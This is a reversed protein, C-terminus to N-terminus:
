TPLTLAVASENFEINRIRVRAALNNVNGVGQFQSGNLLYDPGTGGDVLAYGTAYTVRQSSNDRIRTLFDDNDAQGRIAIDAVGTVGSLSNFRLDTELLDDGWQGAQRVKLRGDLDLGAGAGAGENLDVVLADHGVDGNQAIDLVAGNDIFFDNTPGAFDVRMVDNGDGGDQNISAYGFFDVDFNAGLTLDSSDNGGNLDVNVILIGRVDDGFLSMNVADTDLAGEGGNADLDVTAGDGIGDVDVNLVNADWGLDVYLDFQSIDGRDGSTGVDDVVVNVTDNNDGSDVYIALNSSGEVDDLTLNIVDDGDSTINSDGLVTIDVFSGDDVFSSGANFNMVDVGSTNEGLDVYISRDDDVYDGTVNWTLTDAGHGLQINFRVFERNFNTIGQGVVNVSTQSTNLNETITVNNNGGDGIINLRWEGKILEQTVTVAFLRRNELNELVPQTAKRLTDIANM